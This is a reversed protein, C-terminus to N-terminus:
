VMLIIYFNLSIALINFNKVANNRYLLKLLRFNNKFRDRALNKFVEAIMREMNILYAKNIKVFIKIKLFYNKFFM